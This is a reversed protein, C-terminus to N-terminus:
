IMLMSWSTSLYLEVLISLSLRTQAPHLLASLSCSLAYSITGLELLKNSGM